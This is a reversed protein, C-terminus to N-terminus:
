AQVPRAEVLFPRAAVLDFGTDALLTRWQPETRERGGLAVLMHLDLLKANDPDNGPAIVSELLLLLSDKRMAARVTRLIRGCPEDGWDHLIASLVYVDAGAPVEDFFSGAVFRCRDSLGADDIAARAEDAVHPLDLVTGHLHTQDRLLACSVPSRM